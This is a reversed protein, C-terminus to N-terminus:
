SSNSVFSSAICRSHFILCIDLVALSVRKLFVLTWSYIRCFSVLVPSQICILIKLFTEWHKQTLLNKKYTHSFKMLNQGYFATTNAIESKYLIEKLNQGCFAHIDHLKPSICYKRLIKGLEFRKQPCPKFFITFVDLKTM